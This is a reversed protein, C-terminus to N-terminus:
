NAVAADPGAPKAFPVPKVVTGPRANIAGEVVVRDGPALGSKVLWQDGLARDLILKRQRVTDSEDVVLVMPEGKHNRTVGQQPVLIAEDVVGEQIEARVYMGPLLLTDPNPVLIRLIYSGTTPDVTVDRFQLTGEQPYASGDELLLRVKRGNKGDTNILGTELNRRLRLFDVSSQAVDVHIPDLQQITSLPVAQYATVLAGVTVNSRGIRGSIPATIRTYEVNIRASEVQTEWYMIDALVQELAASADDYDQRGLVDGELLSKYREARSRIAPLHAKAKALSAKASDLAVRFPTPDIQYLLDGAKVDAGEEFLRKQLIGSVQPRIEAVGRSATRGPLEVTLVVPRPTMTVVAVEPPPPSAQQAGASGTPNLALWVALITLISFKKRAHRVPGTKM